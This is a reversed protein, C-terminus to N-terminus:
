PLVFIMSLSDHPITFTIVMVCIDGGKHFTQKKKDKREKQERGGSPRLTQRRTGITGFHDDAIEIGEGTGGVERGVADEEDLAADDIPAGGVGDGHEAPEGGVMAKAEFQAAAVREERGDVTVSLAAETGGGVLLGAPVITLGLIEEVLSHAVIKPARQEIPLVAAAFQLIQALEIELAMGDIGDLSEARISEATAIEELLIRSEQHKKGLITEDEAVLGCMALEDVADVPVGVVFILRQAVTDEERGLAVLALM